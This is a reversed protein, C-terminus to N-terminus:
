NESHHSDFHSSAKVKKFYEEEEQGELLKVVASCECISLKGDDAKALGATAQEPTVFRIYGTTAGQWCKCCSHINCTLQLLRSSIQHVDSPWPAVGLLHCHVLLTVTCTQNCLCPKIQATCHEVIHDGVLRSIM